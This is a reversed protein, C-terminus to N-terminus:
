RHSPMDSMRKSCDMLVSKIKNYLISHNIRVICEYFDQECLLLIPVITLLTQPDSKNEECGAIETLKELFNVVKLQNEKCDSRGHLLIFYNQENGLNEEAEDWIFWLQKFLQSLLYIVGVEVRTLIPFAKLILLNGNDKVGQLAFLLEKIGSGFSGSSMMDRWVFSPTASDSFIKLISNREFIESQKEVCPDHDHYSMNGDSESVSQSIANMSAQASFIIGPNNRVSACRKGGNDEREQQFEDTVLKMSPIVQASVKHADLENSEELTTQQQNMIANTERLHRLLSVCQEYLHLLWFHCFKSIQIKKLPAGVLVYELTLESNLQTVKCSRGEYHSSLKNEGHVFPIYEKLVVDCEHLARFLTQWLELSGCEQQKHKIKQNFSCQGASDYLSHLQKITNMPRLQPCGELMKAECPIPKPNYRSFFEKTVDSKFKNNWHYNSTVRGKQKPRKGSWYFTQINREIVNIQFNMFVEACNVVQDLFSKPISNLSFMPAENFKNGYYRCLIDLWPSMVSKGCYNLCVLYMESNGERSTAPKWAVLSEFSFALLYLLCVNEAEFVTFAKLLLNGGKDLIHLATTAECLHLTCVLREQEGPNFQCDISGDATVLMLTGKGSLGRKRTESLVHQMNSKIQIDGTHDIGYTWHKETPIIFRDDFITMTPDNGEYHPNLTTAMWNWKIWPFKSVLQHNLAAVFAGPAECLHVSNLEKSEMSQAPILEFSNVTEFFKCWAQTLLEPDVIERLKWLIGGAPNMATTHKHWKELPFDNLKSKVENLREKFAMLEPIVWRPDKFMTNPDPMIWEDRPRKFFFKKEFQFMVEMEQPTM